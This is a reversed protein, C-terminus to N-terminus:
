ANGITGLLFGYTILTGIANILLSKEMRYIKWLTFAPEEASLRLVILNVEKYNKPFWGPLSAIFSKAARTAQNAIAAPVMLMVLYTSYSAVMGLMDVYVLYPLTPAIIFIYCYWFLGAMYYLVFVFVPYSLFDDALTIMNILEKYIQLIRVYDQSAILNRSILVLNKCYLKVCFCVSFYFGAVSIIIYNILLPTAFISIERITLCFAKFGSSFYSLRQIPNYVTMELKDGEPASYIEFQENCRVLISDKQIKMFADDLDEEPLSTLAACIRVHFKIEANFKYADSFGISQVQRWLCQNFHFNCDRIELTPFVIKGGKIAATEFDIIWCESKLNSEKFYSYNQM